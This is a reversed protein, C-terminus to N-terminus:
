RVGLEQLWGVMPLVCFFPTCLGLPRPEDLLVKCLHYKDCDDGFHSDLTAITTLGMQLDLNADGEEVKQESQTPM